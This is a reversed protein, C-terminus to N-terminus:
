STIINGYSTSMAYQKNSSLNFPFKLTNSRAFVNLTVDYDKVNGANRDYETIEHCTPMYIHSMRPYAISFGDNSVPNIAQAVVYAWKVTSPFLSEDRFVSVRQDFDYPKTFKTWDIKTDFANVDFVISIKYNGVYRVPETDYSGDLM